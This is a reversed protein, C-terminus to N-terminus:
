ESTSFGGEQTFNWTRTISLIDTDKRMDETFAGYPEGIRVIREAAEDLIKQGSSRNIEIDEITGDAKISVTMLLTGYLKGKAAEPYNLAGIKEMKQRFSEVYAAFRYERVRLGIFKRKPRKQYADQEKAIEAELRVAELSQAVLDSAKPQQKTATAPTHEQEIAHQANLQTMAQQV